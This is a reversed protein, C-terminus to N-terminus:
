PTLDFVSTVQPPSLSSAPLSTLSPLSPPSPLSPLTPLIHTPRPPHPPRPSQPPHPSPQSSIALFPSFCRRCCCTGLPSVLVQPSPLSPWSSMRDRGVQMTKAIRHRVCKRLPGESSPGIHLRKKRSTNTSITRRTNATAVSM